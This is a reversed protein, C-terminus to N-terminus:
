KAKAAIYDASNQAKGSAIGISSNGGHCDTCGLQVTKSPHMTPEDMPSHCTICGVSKRNPEELSQGPTLTVTDQRAAPFGSLGACLLATAVCTLAAVLPSAGGALMAAIKAIQRRMM